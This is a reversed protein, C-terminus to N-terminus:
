LFANKDFSVTKEDKNKIAKRYAEFKTRGYSHSFSKDGFWIRCFWVPNFALLHFISYQIEVSSIKNENAQVEKKYYYFLKM